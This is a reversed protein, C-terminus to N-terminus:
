SKWAQWAGSDIFCELGGLIGVTRLRGHRGLMGLKGLIVLVGFTRLRGLIGLRELIGLIGFCGLDIGPIAIRSLKLFFVLFGLSGIPRLM